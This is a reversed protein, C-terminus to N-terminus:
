VRILALRLTTTEEKCPINAVGRPNARGVPLSPNVGITESRLMLALANPWLEYGAGCYLPVMSVTAIQRDVM